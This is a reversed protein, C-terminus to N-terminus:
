FTIYKVNKVNKFSEIWRWNKNKKLRFGDEKDFEFWTLLLLLWFPFDFLLYEEEEFDVEFWSLVNQLM